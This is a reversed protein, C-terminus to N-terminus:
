EIVKYVSEFSIDRSVLVNVKSAPLVMLTPPINMDNRLVDQAMSVGTNATNSPVFQQQQQANRALNSLTFQTADKIVSIMIAAGFREQFHNDVYGGVGNYGMADTGPSDLEAVTGDPNDVRTWLLFVRAQGNKLASQQEGHLMAGRNILIIKGNASYVDNSVECEIFGALTTDIGTKLSCPIITGRKLLYDLNSLSKAYRAQMVTPKLQREISGEERQNGTSSKLLASFDPRPPFGPESQGSYAAPQAHAQGDEDLNVLAHGSMKRQDPTLPCDGNGCNNGAQAPAEQYARRENYAQAPAPNQLSATKLSGRARALEAQRRAEADAEEAERRRREADAIEKKRKNIFDNDLQDNSVNQAGAMIEIPVEEAPKTRVKSYFMLGGTGVAMTGVVGALIALRNLNSKKKVQATVEGLVSEDPASAEIPKGKAGMLPMGVGEQEVTNETM